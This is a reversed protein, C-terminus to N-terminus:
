KEALNTKVGNAKSMMVVLSSKLGCGAVASKPPQQMQASGNALQAALAMVYVLRVKNVALASSNKFM